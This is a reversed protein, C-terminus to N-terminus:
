SNSAQNHKQRERHMMLKVLADRARQEYTETREEQMVLSMKQLPQPFKKNLLSLAQRARNEYTQTVTLNHSMHSPMKVSGSGYM